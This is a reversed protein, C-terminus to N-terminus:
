REAYMLVDDCFTFHNTNPNGYRKFKLAKKLNIIYKDLVSKTKINQVTVPLERIVNCLFIKYFMNIFLDWLHFLDMRNTDFFNTGINKLVVVKATRSKGQLRM